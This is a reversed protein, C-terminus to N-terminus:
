LRGAVLGTQGSGLRRLIEEHLARHNAAREEFRQGETLHLRSWSDDSPETTTPDSM